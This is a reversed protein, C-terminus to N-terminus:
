DIWWKDFDEKSIVEREFCDPENEKLWLMKAM